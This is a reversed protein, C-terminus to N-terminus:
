IGTFYLDLKYFHPKGDVYEMAGVWTEGMGGDDGTYYFSVPTSGAYDALTPEPGNLNGLTLKGCTEKSSKGNVARSLSEGFLSKFTRRRLAGRAM